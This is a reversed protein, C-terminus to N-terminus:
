SMSCSINREYCFTIFKKSIPVLVNLSKEGKAHWQVALPPLLLGVFFYYDHVVFKNGLGPTHKVVYTIFQFKM